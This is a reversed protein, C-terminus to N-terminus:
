LLRALAQETNVVLQRVSFEREIRARAAHGLATRQEPTLALLQRWGACLAEPDRPPVVLGTEGVVLASDGVDTVVCPVGCAMAEGVVNPFGEGYASSSTVLDLTSYVAPMDGRGGAWVLRNGVGLEEALVELNRRYASPGDGVCVFYVNDRERALLAAARLFTPHDKMPDLRGVLGIVDAPEPIAWQRRVEGGAASNSQFRDTDIGNPIVIMKEGSYGNAIHHERGAYSNAIILDAYRSLWAGLRFSLAPLWDCHAFDVNSARLGWVVKAGVLRGALWGLENSVSLYGHVIDPRVGRALGVLRRLFPLVDWRGRKGLSVVRIGEVGAVEPRLVGGDYFTAVTVAFRSKDVGKALTILQREAGGRDLSRILLLLRIM